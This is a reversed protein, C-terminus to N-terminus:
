CQVKNNKKKVIISLCSWTRCSINFSVHIWPRWILNSREEVAVIHLVIENKTLFRLFSSFPLGPVSKICYIFTVNAQVSTSLYSTMVQLGEVVQNVIFPILLNDAAYSIWPVIFNVGFLPILFFLTRLSTRFLFLYM